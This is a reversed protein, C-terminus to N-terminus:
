ALASLMCRGGAAFSGTKTAATPITTPGIFSPLADPITCWKVAFKIRDGSQVPVRPAIGVNDVIEVDGAATQADFAEHVCHTRSGYFFRPASTVRADFTVEAPRTGAYASQLNM